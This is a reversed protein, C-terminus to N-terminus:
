AAAEASPAAPLVYFDNPQVAGGTAAIIAQMHPPSPHRGRKYRNVAAQSAGILEAFAAESLQRDQLYDALKMGRYYWDPM